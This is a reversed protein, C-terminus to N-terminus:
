NRILVGLGPLTVDAEALVSVAAEQPSAGTRASRAAIAATVIPTAFSTGSWTAYGDYPAVLPYCSRLDVGSAAADVWWGHNSFDARARGDAALAAVALVQKLAAPWFPRDGAANGACAVIVTRRDLAAVARAVVPSPRDDYTHCGASLNVLRTGGVRALARVLDLEDGVGDDAIVRLSRLRASPAHQLLLGAVFTGHGATDHAPDIPEPVYWDSSEYWPHRAIGTDLVTIDVPRAGDAVPAPMPAAPRPHTAGGSWWLPQAHLVHNPAALGTLGAALDCVDIRAASRLRIRVVEGHDERRDSWRRVRDEVVAVDPGAALLEDRRILASRGASPTVVVADRHRELVRALRAEQDIM